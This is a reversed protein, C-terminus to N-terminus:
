AQAAACAAKYKAHAAIFAESSGGRDPHAKAMAAKLQALIEPSPRVSSRKAPARKLRLSAAGIMKRYEELKPWTVSERIVLQQERTLEDWAAALQGWLKAIEQQAEAAQEAALGEKAQEAALQEQKAVARANGRCLAFVFAGVLAAIIGSGEGGILLGAGLLMGLIGIVEGPTRPGTVPQNPAAPPPPPPVPEAPSPDSMFFGGESLVWKTFKVLGGLALICAGVFAGLVAIVLLNQAVFSGVGILVVVGVPIAAL